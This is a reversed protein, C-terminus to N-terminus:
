ETIVHIDSSRSYDRFYWFSCATAAPLFPTMTFIHIKEEEKGQMLVSSSSSRRGGRACSAAYTEAYMLLCLWAAYM